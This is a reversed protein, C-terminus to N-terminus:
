ASLNDCLFNFLERGIRVITLLNEIKFFEVIININSEAERKIKCLLWFNGYKNNRKELFLHNKLCNKTGSIM